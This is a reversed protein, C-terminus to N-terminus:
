ALVLYQAYLDQVNDGRAQLSRAVNLAIRLGSSVANNAVIQAEALTAPREEKSGDAYREVVIFKDRARYNTGRWLEVQVLM